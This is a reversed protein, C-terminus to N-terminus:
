ECNMYNKKECDQAMRQADVIQSPKMEKAMRDLSEKANKDGKSAALNFWMGARVYDQTVSKGM